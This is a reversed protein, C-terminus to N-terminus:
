CGAFTTILNAATSAAEGRQCCSSSSHTETQCCHRGRDALSPLRVCSIADAPCTEEDRRKRTRTRTEEPEDKDIDKAEEKVKTTKKEEKRNRRRRRREKSNEKKKEKETKREIKKDKM